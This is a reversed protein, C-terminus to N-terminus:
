NNNGRKCRSEKFAKICKNCFDFYTNRNLTDAFQLGKDEPLINECCDCVLTTIRTM